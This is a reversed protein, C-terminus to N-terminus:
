YLCRVYMQIHGWTYKRSRLVIKTKGGQLIAGGADHSHYLGTHKGGQGVSQLWMRTSVDPLNRM